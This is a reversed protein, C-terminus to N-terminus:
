GGAVAKIIEIRDGEAVYQSDYEGRRVVRENRAVAIGARPSGLSDLLAGVSMESPFERMEGNVSAKV